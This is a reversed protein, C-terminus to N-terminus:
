GFEFSTVGFIRHLPFEPIPGHYMRACGFSETMGFAAALALAHENPEPVDLMVPQGQVRGMLGRLLREAIDPRDAHVPGFKYGSLCPRLCAMGVVAGDELVAASHTGPADCWPGLFRRRDVPFFPLDYRHLVEPAIDSLPTLGQDGSEPANGEFRLDRHALVFGGKAYFSQMTFVGDMGIAASPALRSRLRRLRHHWLMGGLGLGRHDPRMIFLGMFGFVGDYSLVSGGGVMEGERRLAIFGDPDFAHAVAVDHLGPNWGEAGAWEVIRRVEAPTMTGFEYGQPLDNV